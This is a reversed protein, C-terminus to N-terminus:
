IKAIILDDRSTSMREVISGDPPIVVATAGLDLTILVIREVVVDVSQLSVFGRGFVTPAIASGILSLWRTSYIYRTLGRYRRGNQITGIYTRTVTLNAV